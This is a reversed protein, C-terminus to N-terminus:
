QSRPQADDPPRLRPQADAVPGHRQGRAARAFHRRDARSRRRDARGGAHVPRTGGSVPDGVQLRQRHGAVVRQDLLVEAIPDRAATACAASSRAAISRSASCIPASRGSSATGSSSARDVAARRGSHQLRGRVRRRHLRARAHRAGAAAVPRRGSLHALQREDAPAHAAGPRRLVHDPPAQRQRFGVRHDTRRRSPGRRNPDAGSLGVRVPHRRHGAMFKHLTQAARFITDGEPM